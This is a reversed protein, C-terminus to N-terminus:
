LRNAEHRYKELKQKLEHVQSRLKSNEEKAAILGEEYLDALYSWEELTQPMPEGKPTLGAIM